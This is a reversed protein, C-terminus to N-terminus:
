IQNIKIEIKILCKNFDILMAYFAIIRSYFKCWFLGGIQVTPIISPVSPMISAIAFVKAVGQKTHPVRPPGRHMRNRHLARHTRPLHSGYAACRRDCQTVGRKDASRQYVCRPRMSFPILLPLTHAPPLTHQPTHPCMTDRGVALLVFYSHAAGKTRTQHRSSQAKVELSRRPAPHPNTTSM